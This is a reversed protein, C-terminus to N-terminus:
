YGIPRSIDIGEPLFKEEGPAGAGPTSVRQSRAVGLFIGNYMIGIDAVYERAPNVDFYMRGIRESVAMDTFYDLESTDYDIGTVDYVRLHLNGKFTKLTEERVEWFSFIRYPNVTMLTMSNEGYESPLTVVPSSPFTIESPPEEQKVSDSKRAREQQIHTIDGREQETETVREIIAPQLIERLQKIVPKVMPLEKRATKMQTTKKLEKRKETGERKSPPVIVKQPTDKAPTPIEKKEIKKPATKKLPQEAPKKTTKKLGKKITKEPRKPSIATKVAKSAKEAKVPAKTKKSANRAPAAPKKVITKKAVARAAVPENKQATSKQKQINKKQKQIKATEKAATKQKLTTGAKVNRTATRKVAPKEPSVSPATANKKPTNKLAKRTTKKAGSKKVM